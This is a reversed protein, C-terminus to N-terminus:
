VVAKFLNILKTLPSVCAPYKKGWFGITTEAVAIPTEGDSNKMYVFRSNIKRMVYSVKALFDDEDKVEKYAAFGHLVCSGDWKNIHNAKVKHKLYFRVLASPFRSDILHWLVNYDDANVKNVDIGKAIFLQAIKTTPADFFIPGILFHEHTYDAKHEFLIKVLSEVNLHLAKHLLSECMFMMNPNAGAQLLQTVTNLLKSADKEPEITNIVTALLEDKEQDNKDQYSPEDESTAFLVCMMDCGNMSHIQNVSLLTLVNILIFYKM